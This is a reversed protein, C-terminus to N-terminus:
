LWSGFLLLMRLAAENQDLADFKFKGGKVAVQSFVEISEQLFTIIAGHNKEAASRIKSSDEIKIKNTDDGSQSLGHKSKQMDIFSKTVRVPTVFSLISILILIKSINWFNHHPM